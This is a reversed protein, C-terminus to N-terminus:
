HEPVAYGAAYNLFERQILYEYVINTNSIEANTKELQARALDVITSKGLEYRTSTLEFANNANELLQKLVDINSYLVQVNNWARRIDRSLMNQKDIVDQAASEALYGTSKSNAVIAGGDFIPISLNIGAAAYRPKILGGPDIPAEGAYGIASLTPYYASASADATKRAALARAKLSQLLPNLDLARAIIKDVAEPPPPIAEPASLVFNQEEKLGLAQSFAAAANDVENRAQLKLLQANGIDQRAISVDLDSRRGAQRLASVQELFDSRAKLTDDAVKELAQARFTNYYARTVNFLIKQRTDTGLASYADVNAKIAEIRKETRGFDTIMQNVTIGYAGRDIITPNTIADTAAIRTGESAFTRVINGSVQPMYRSRALDVDQEAARLRFDESQIQPHNRLAMQQAQALTLRQDDSALAANNLCVILAVAYLYIRNM